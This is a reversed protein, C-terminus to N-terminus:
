NKSKIEQIMETDQNKPQEEIQEDQDHEEEYEGLAKLAERM